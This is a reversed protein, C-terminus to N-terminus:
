KQVNLNSQVFVHLFAHTVSSICKLLTKASVDVCLPPTALLDTSKCQKHVTWIYSYTSNEFKFNKYKEFKSKKTAKKELSIMKSQSYNIATQCGIRSGQTVFSLDCSFHHIYFTLSSFFFVVETSSQGAASFACWSCM